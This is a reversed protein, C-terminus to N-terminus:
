DDYEVYMKVDCHWGGSHATYPGEHWYVPMNDQAYLPVIPRWIKMDKEGPIRRLVQELKYSRGRDQSLYSELVRDKGDFRAIYIRNTFTAPDHNPDESYRRLGAEGVGYYYAMGGLYTQSGDIVGKALFEGATCIPQSAVWKGDVFTASCYYAKAPDPAFDDDLVFPAFGVRLPLTPAVDLLRVTTGEPATYVTDLQSLVIMRGDNEYLNIDLPTGDTKLLQGNSAFIGSRITHDLSIRPHGYVAFFFQENRGNNGQLHQKRIDFYFLGGSESHLFTKPQSWTAGGDRSCRFQWNVKAVRCFLWIENTVCNEYIQAYTTGGEYELVQEPGFSMIDYPKETIRYYLYKQSRGHGTYAAIIHGSRLVCLGPANHEDAYDNNLRRLCVDRSVAKACKADMEKVHIEGTDTVYGIYTKGNEGVVARSNIWWDTNARKIQCLKAIELDIM